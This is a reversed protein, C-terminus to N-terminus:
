GTAPTEGGPIRENATKVFPRGGKLAVGASSILGIRSRSLPKRFQAWPIPRAEEREIWSKVVRKTAGELFQLSDFDAFPPNPLPM